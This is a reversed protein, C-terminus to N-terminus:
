YVLAGDLIAIYSRGGILASPDDFSGGFVSFDVSSGSPDYIYYVDGDAYVADIITMKDYSYAVIDYEDNTVFSARQTVEGGATYIIEATSSGDYEVTVVVETQQDVFSIKAFGGDVSWEADDAYLGERLDKEIKEDDGSFINEFVSCFSGYYSMYQHYMAADSNYFDTDFMDFFRLVATNIEGNFDRYVEKYSRYISDANSGATEQWEGMEQGQEPNIAAGQGTGPIGEQGGGQSEGKGCACLMCISLLLTGTIMKGKM